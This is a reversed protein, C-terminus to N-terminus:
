EGEMDAKDNILKDTVALGKILFNPVNCGCEVLNELISRAENVMLSAITFWGIMTLFSLNIQLIDNGLAVFVKSMLFAVLIVAWYGLKKLIGNLGTKSCEQKLKRAKYWGTLYDAINLIMFTVFVYWFMGFIATLLAIVTGAVTNYTDLIKNGEM